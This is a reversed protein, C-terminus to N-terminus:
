ADEKVAMALVVCGVSAWVQDNPPFGMIELATAAAIYAVALVAALERRKM